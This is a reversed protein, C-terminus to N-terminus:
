RGVGRWTTLYELVPQVGVQVRDAEVLQGLGVGAEGAARYEDALGLPRLESGAAGSASGDVPWEALKLKTVNRETGSCSSPGFRAAGRRNTNLHVAVTGAGRGHESSLANM